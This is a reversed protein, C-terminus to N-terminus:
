ERAKNNTEQQLVANSVAGTEFMERVKNDTEQSLLMDSPLDASPPSSLLSADM